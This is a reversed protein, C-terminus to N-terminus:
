GVVVVCHAVLDAEHLERGGARGARDGHAPPEHVRRGARDLAQLQHDGVDALGAVLQGRPAHLHAFDLLKGPPREDEEGVRVAVAPGHLLYGGAALRPSPLAPPPMAAASTTMPGAVGASRAPTAPM